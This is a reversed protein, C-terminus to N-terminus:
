LQNEAWDPDFSRYSTESNFMGVPTVEGDFEQELEGRGRLRTPANVDATLYEGDLVTEVYAHLDDGEEAVVIMSARDDAELISQAFLAYDECDGELGNELYELPKQWSDGTDSVYSFDGPSYGISLSYTGPWEQRIELEEALNEIRDKSPTIYDQYGPPLLLRYDATFLEPFSTGLSYGAVAVLPLSGIFERRSVDM